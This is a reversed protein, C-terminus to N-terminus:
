KARVSGRIAWARAILSITGHETTTIREHLRERLRLRADEALSMAYSPAPGQGGLFPQWYDEFSAFPTPIDIAKV